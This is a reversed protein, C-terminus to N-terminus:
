LNIQYKRSLCLLFSRCVERKYCTLQHKDNNLRETTDSEKHGWPSCCALGGQGLWSRSSVLVWTWQTLSAMWGNWGRNDGEKGARLRELGWPGKGFLPSKVDPPWLILILFLVWRSNQEPLLSGRHLCDLLLGEVHLPLAPSRGLAQSVLGSDTKVSCSPWSGGFGPDVTWPSVVPLSYLPKGPIGPGPLSAPIRSLELDPWMGVMKASIFSRLPDTRKSLQSPLTTLTSQIVSM